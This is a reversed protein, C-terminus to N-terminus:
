SSPAPRALPDRGRGLDRVRARHLQHEGRPGLVVDAAAVVQGVRDGPQLGVLLGAGVHQERGPQRAGLVDPLDDRRDVPRDVHEGHRAGGVTASSAASPTARIETPPANAKAASAASTSAASSSRSWPM